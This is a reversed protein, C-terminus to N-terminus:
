TRDVVIPTLIQCHPRGQKMAEILVSKADDKDADYVFQLKKIEMHAERCLLALDIIRDARHIMYLRGKDHLLSSIKHLLSQLDLHMEHRASSLYANDNLNKENAVQFYPPNCVICSVPPHTLDLINAHIIQADFQQHHDLNYRALACADENIEVGILQKPEYRMAYLLLAGNNCGIDMVVDKKRITMFNGLLATDTNVHFMQPHQYYYIDTGPLFDYTYNSIDM